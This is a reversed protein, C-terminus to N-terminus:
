GRGCYGLAWRKCWIVDRNRCTPTSSTWVCSISNYIRRGRLDVSAIMDAANESILRFIEERKALQRRIRRIQLQQHISYLDFLLVAVLLGWVAQRIGFLTEWSEQAQLLSPLVLCHWGRPAANRYGSDGVVVMGDTLRVFNM